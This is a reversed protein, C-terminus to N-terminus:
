KIGLEEFYAKLRGYIKDNCLNNKYMKLATEAPIPFGFVTALFANEKKHLLCFERGSLDQVQNTKYDLIKITIRSDVQNIELSGRRGILYRLINHPLRYSFRNSNNIGYPKGEKLIIYIKDTKKM